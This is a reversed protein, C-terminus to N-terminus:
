ALNKMASNRYSIRSLTTLSAVQIPSNWRTMKFRHYCNIKSLLTLSIRSVTVGTLTRRLSPWPETTAVPFSSRPSIWASCSTCPRSRSSVSPVLMTSLRIRRSSSHFRANSKRIGNPTTIRKVSRTNRNSSAFRRSPGLPRSYYFIVYLGRFM